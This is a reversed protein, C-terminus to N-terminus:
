SRSRATTTPLHDLEMLEASFRDYDGYTYRRGSFPTALAVQV